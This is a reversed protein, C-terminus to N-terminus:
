FIDQIGFNKHSKENNKKSEYKQLISHVVTPDRPCTLPAVDGNNGNDYVILCAEVGCMTSFEFIKKILGKKRLMLTTKHSREKSIHKLTIRAHGM